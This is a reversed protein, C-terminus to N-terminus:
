QNYEKESNEFSLKLEQKHKCKSCYQIIEDKSAELIFSIYKRDINKCKECKFVYDKINNINKLKEKEIVAEKKKEKLYQWKDCEYKSNNKISDINKALKDLEFIRGSIQKLAGKKVEVGAPEDEIQIKQRELELHLKRFHLYASLDKKEILKDLISM